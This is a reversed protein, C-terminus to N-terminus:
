AFARAFTDIAEVSAPHAMEFSLARPEGRIPQSWLAAFTEGLDAGCHLIERVAESIPMEVGVRRALDTLSIATNEGEVVVPAGGFCMPRAIGQGLQLGLSMNRSSSSSCTLTLDGVGSLGTVTERSGGLAAALAKMEDLGRTILAARTNEAFGAGTMMGCAIAIVNKVAGGIEVGIVDDSVYPRFWESGMALAMRAAPSTQPAAREASTFPAAITVATPYGRATEHAFTPGSLVGVTHRPMEAGVVDSMMMGTGAEIGKSCVFVPVGGLHQDLRRAMARISSSPTVLLVADADSVAVAMDATVSLGAPFDVEPLYRSNRGQRAMAEVHAPDRGWLRVVRGASAATMALATGWAGAGIVAISRIPRQDPLVIPSHITEDHM